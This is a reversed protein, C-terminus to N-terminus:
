YVITKIQPDSRWKVKFYGSVSVAFETVVAEIGPLLIVGYGHIM